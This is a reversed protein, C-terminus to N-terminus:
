QSQHKSQLPIKKIVAADFGYFYNELIIERWKRHEKDIILLSM